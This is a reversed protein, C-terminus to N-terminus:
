YTNRICEAFDFIRDMMQEIKIDEDSIDRKLRSFCSKKKLHSHGYSHAHRHHESKNGKIEHMLKQVDFKIQM